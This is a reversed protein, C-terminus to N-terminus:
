SRMLHREPAAHGMRQELRGGRLPSGTNKGEATGFGAGPQSVKQRPFHSRQSLVAGRRQVTELPVDAEVSLICPFDCRPQRQVITNAPFRVKRYLLRIAADVM